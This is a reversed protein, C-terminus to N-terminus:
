ATTSSCPLNCPGPCYNAYYSCYVAAGYSQIMASCKPADNPCTGSGGSGGGCTIPCLNAYFSCYYSKGYKLANTACLPAEGSSSATTPSSTLPPPTPAPPITATTTPSNTPQVGCAVPCLPMYYSCYYAVGYQQVRQACLPDDALCVKNINIILLLLAILLNFHM